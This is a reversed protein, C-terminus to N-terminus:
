GGRAGDRAVSLPQEDAEQVVSGDIRGCEIAVAVLEPLDLHAVKYRVLPEPRRRCKDAREDKHGGVVLAAPDDDAEVPRRSLRDPRKISRFKGIVCQRHEDGDVALLLDYEDAAVRNRTEFRLSALFLPLGLPRCGLADGRRDRVPRVDERTATVWLVM